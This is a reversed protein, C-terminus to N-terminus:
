ISGIMKTHKEVKMMMNIIQFFTIDTNKKSAENYAIELADLKFWDDGDLFAIYEGKAIKMANNRSAGLGMNEQNIITIRSDKKCYDNIINLSNDSSGDNVIIIEIERITQNILSEIAKIIFKEENFVALIASIKIKNM